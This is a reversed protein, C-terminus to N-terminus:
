HKEKPLGYQLNLMTTTYILAVAGLAILWYHMFVIGFGLLAIAGSMAAPWISSPSFFGLTGAGDSIEAEEWDEPVVDMRVETFHLYAGLMLALLTALILSVGGAWEFNYGGGDAVFRNGTDDVYMTALFYLVSMIALFVTISYMIRSSGRM